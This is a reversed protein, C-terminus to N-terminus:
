VELKIDEAEEMDIVKEDDKLIGELCKFQFSKAKYAKWKCGDVRLVIGEKIHRPDIPDPGEVLVDIYRKLLEQDGDYIFKKFNPCRYNSDDLNSNIDDEINTIKRRAEKDLTSIDIEPVMKVNMEECRRKVTEHDYDIEFGDENCTSIRYVYVEFEGPKCGYTFVTEKGYQKIFEKDKLLENSVKAMIPKDPGCFGVIEYFINEGKHLKGAFYDHAKKRFDENEGYYGTKRNEDKITVRRSGYVYDWYVKPKIM